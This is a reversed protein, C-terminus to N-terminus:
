HTQGETEKKSDGEVTHDPRQLLTLITAKVKKELIGEEAEENKEEGDVHQGAGDLRDPTIHLIAAPM